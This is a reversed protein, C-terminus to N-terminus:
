NKTNETSSIDNFLGLLFTDRINISYKGAVYVIYLDYSGQPVCGQEDLPTYM